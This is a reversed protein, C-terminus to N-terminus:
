AYTHQTVQLYFDSGNLQTKLVSEGVLGAKTAAYVSTGSTGLQGLLSSVNIICGGGTFASDRKAKRRLMQAGVVKTGYIAGTLNTNILQGIEAERTRNLLNTQAIGACNVLVDIEQFDPSHADTLRKWEDMDTLSRILFTKHQSPSQIIANQQQQHQGGGKSLAQHQEDWLQQANQRQVDLLSSLKFQDRGILLLRAGEQAFRTAIASGIGGTAGTIAVTKGALNFFSAAQFPLSM